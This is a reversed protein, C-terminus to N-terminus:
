GSLMAQAHIYRAALVNSTLLITGNVELKSPIVTSACVSYKKGERESEV